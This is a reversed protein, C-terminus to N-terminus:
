EANALELARTFTAACVTCSAVPTNPYWQIEWVSDTEIAKALEELDPFDERAYTGRELAQAVTEYNGKHQNHTIHLGGAHRPWTPETTQPDSM